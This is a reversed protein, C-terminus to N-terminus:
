AAARKPVRGYFEAMTLGLAEVIAALAKQSPTQKGGEIQSVSSVALDAREAVQRQTLKKARRWSSIREGLEM